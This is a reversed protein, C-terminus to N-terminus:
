APAVEADNRHPNVPRSDAAIEIRERIPSGTVMRACLEAFERHQALARRSTAVSWVTDIGAPQLPRGAFRDALWDMMVPAGLFQLPLHASLRDRLYHVHGGGYLYRWVQADVDGVAIVEDNVGQVILMPMDPIRHGPRIDALIRRMEPHDLFADVGGRVHNDVSRFALKALLPITASTEARLLLRLYEASVRTRMIRDLQPYARRLGATFVMAFGAFASGNMRVFAAAPDGVPSGAAAGVIDLEPAYDTALEAAWSTALGGGSYGWLGIPTGADLGLPDFRLAARAADLARYGPERAAGFRGGLGEHDPVSVAWGRALAAAILPLELQPIAGLARAGHRLAYSPFCKPAVADIACQFSVLPRSADPDAEWPLAVTTVAAEPVGDLDRTRYLLQWASIRQPMVGFLSLEVQRSRLIEGPAFRELEAPAAHFPDADPLVPRTRAAPQPRLPVAPATQPM